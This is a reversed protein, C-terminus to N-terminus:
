KGEAKLEECTKGGHKRLLDATKTDDTNISVDLPTDRDDERANVDAGKDVLLEVIDRYGYAAALHLPTRSCLPNKVNVDAGNAILLKVTETHHGVISGYLPTYGGQNKPNLDGSDLTFTVVGDRLLTASYDRANVDAGKAILLKIIIKHGERAAKHLPTHGLEDKTNVDADKAFCRRVLVINGEGAAQILTRNSDGCGVLLVAAIIILLQKM